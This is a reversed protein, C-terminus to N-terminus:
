EEVLAIVHRTTDTELKLFSAGGDNDSQGYCVDVEASQTSDLLPKLLQTDVRLSYKGFSPKGVYDAREQRQGDSSSMVLGDEEFDLVLITKDMTSFISMRDMIDSLTAKKLTVKNPMERGVLGKIREVPFTTDDDYDTIQRGSIVLGKGIILVKGDDSYHIRVTDTDFLTAFSVLRNPLFLPNEVCPKRYQSIKLGNTGIAGDKDFFIGNHAEVNDRDSLSQRTGEYSQRLTETKVEVGEIGDTSINDFTVANGDEDAPIAFTYKGNGRVTLSTGEMELEVSDSSTKEILRTFTAGPVSFSAAGDSEVAMDAQMTNTGDTSLIRLRGDAINMGLLGTMPVFKNNGMGRAVKALVAKLDTTKLKINM